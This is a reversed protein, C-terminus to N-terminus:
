RRASDAPGRRACRQGDAGGAAARADLGQKVVDVTVLARGSLTEGTARLDYDIRTLTAEVPPGDPPPPTPIAKARLARYDDVPLVVWGDRPASTQPPTQARAAASPAVALALGLACVLRTFTGMAEM